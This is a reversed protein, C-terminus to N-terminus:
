MPPPQSAMIFPLTRFFEMKTPRTQFFESTDFRWKWVLEVKDTSDVISYIHIYTYYINKLQKFLKMYMYIYIYIWILGWPCGSVALPENKPEFPSGFRLLNGRSGPGFGPPFTSLELVHPSHVIPAVRTWCCAFPCPGHHSFICPPMLNGKHPPDFFAFTHNLHIERTITCQKPLCYFSEQFFGCWSLRCHCDHFTLVFATCFLLVGFWRLWTVVAINSSHIGV